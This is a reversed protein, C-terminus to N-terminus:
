VVGPRSTNQPSTSLVSLSRYAERLYEEVRQWDGAVDTSYGGTIRDVAQAAQARCEASRRIAETTAGFLAAHLRALSEVMPEIDGTHDLTQRREIALKRHVIWYDMELAALKAADMLVGASRPAKEYYRRLHETAAPVDNDVPAFALSARVVDVAAAIATPLSMGFQERNLQVMLRLVRLWKRDYYAEWGAKEFYAVRDPDSVRQRDHVASHFSANHTSATQTM